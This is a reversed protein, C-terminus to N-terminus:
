RIVGEAVREKDDEKLDTILTNTTLLLGALSAANQLATRTVKASDVIGMKLLDGYEGSRANLGYSGERASVEEYAAGGDIGANEAIQRLPFELARAVVDQGHKEEGKLRLAQVAPIARVCAVGGGAVIGEEVAARTAHLAGEIRAKREKMATETPGGVSIMAAGGTLKGLREELKERDYDSTTAEIRHRIQDVRKQIEDPDGSAIITTKEKGLTVRDAKGLDSLTLGELKMGRDESIVVGGTLIALDELMSKRRDGFGPAKVAAVKLVGRLKNVVLAALAEGEIGEAVILLPKGTQAAMELIPILDQIVSIKKEHLLILPEELVATMSKPDTIFYPSIYGKDFQLGDAYEVTTEMGKGEEVAIIGEKKVKEMAEALLEGIEPDNNASVAGVHAVQERGEVPSALRKIEEVAAATAKEIGRRLAMPNVGALLRRLGELYIAEALVTATTTGDGAADSTKTAVENILKAGMNEFPDELEIEKSVTVGDKTVVPKGFKKELIVSRGVPGMTIRVADALKKVGKHIKARAEHDFIMQKASAM